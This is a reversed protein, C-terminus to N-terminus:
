AKKETLKFLKWKGQSIEQRRLWILFRCWDRKLMNRALDSCLSISQAGLVLAPYSLFVAGSIWSGFWKHFSYFVEKGKNNGNKSCCCWESEEWNQSVPRLSYGEVKKLKCPGQASDLPSTSRLFCVSALHFLSAKRWWGEHNVCTLFFMTQTFSSFFPLWM